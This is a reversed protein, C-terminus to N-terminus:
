RWHWLVILTFRPVSTLTLTMSMSPLNSALPVSLLPWNTAPTVSVSKAFKWFFRILALLFYNMLVTEKIFNSVIYIKFFGNSLMAYRPITNGPGLSPIGSLIRFKGWYENIVVISCQPIANFCLLPRFAWCRLRLFKYAQYVKKQVKTRWVVLQEHSTEKSSGTM